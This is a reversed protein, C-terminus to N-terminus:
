LDNDTKDNKLLENSYDNDNHIVHEDYCIGVDRVIAMFKDM